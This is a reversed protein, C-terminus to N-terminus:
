SYCTAGLVVEMAAVMGALYAIKGERIADLLAFKYTLNTIKM